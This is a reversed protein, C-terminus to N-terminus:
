VGCRGGDCDNGTGDNPDFKGWKSKAWKVVQRIGTAGMMRYPRFMTRPKGKSTFGMEKELTEVKLITAEDLQKLGARNENICPFCERSRHKLPTFGCHFLLEDRAAEDYEVLPAWCDRGDHAFSNKTFEPFNKRNESEERRVGILVTAEKWLDLETMLKISPAIKLESTCFQIGQRPWGKHNLVLQRMGISHTEHYKFGIQKVWNEVEELRNKWDPHAWGTHSFVVHVDQLKNERAWQILAVSDNGGSTFLFYMDSGWFTSFAISAIADTRRVQWEGSM